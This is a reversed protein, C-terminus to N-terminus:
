RHRTRRGFQWPCSSGLVVITPPNRRRFKGRVPVAACRTGLQDGELHFEDNRDAAPGRASPWQAVMGSRLARDQPGLRVVTTPARLPPHAARQGRCPPDGHHVLRDPLGPAPGLGRESESELGSEAVSGATLSGRPSWLLVRGVYQGPTFSNVDDPGTQFTPGLGPRPRTPSRSPTTVIADGDPTIRVDARTRTGVYYDLKTATDNEVAVHFTRDAETSDISGSVGLATLTAEYAPDADWVMLHRGEVDTALANALAALDVHETKLQDVVAKAVASINDHREGSLSVAPYEEYQEHLLVEGVNAATIVGPIGPVTVPGTLALLSALTPVDLAIVGDVPTGTAQDFMAQMVQSSFPFDATANVSQWLLTPQYGGFVQQTGPPIPVDVAQSPEIDDVSGVDDMSYTGGQATLVGVSLVDGQDRMEANNEGAILYTRPGDAGLFPLAYGITQNGRGLDTAIRGVQQDFDRRATGLPGFLDGVPRDLGEMTAQAQVMSQQLSELADISVTTGTSQAVLANVKQLLGAATSATTGTDDVLSEMGNRQDSLYPLKGLVKLGISTDLTTSANSADNYM